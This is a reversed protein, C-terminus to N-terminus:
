RTTKIMNIRPHSLDSEPILIGEISYQENTLCELDNSNDIWGRRVLIIGNETNFPQLVYYGQITNGKITKPSYLMMYKDKIWKGSTSIMRYKWYDLDKNENINLTEPLLDSKKELEIILGQKWILRKTQWTGLSLLIIISIYLTYKFM